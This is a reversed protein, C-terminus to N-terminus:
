VNQSSLSFKQQAKKGFFGLFRALKTKDFRKDIQVRQDECM